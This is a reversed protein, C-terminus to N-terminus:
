NLWQKHWPWCRDNTKVIKLVSMFSGIFTNYIFTGIFTLKLPLEFKLIAITVVLLYKIFLLKQFCYTLFFFIDLGFKTFITWMAHSTCCTSLNEDGRSRNDSSFINAPQITVFSSNFIKFFQRSIAYVVLVYWSDLFSPLGYFERWVPSEVFKPWSLEKMKLFDLKFMSLHKWSM